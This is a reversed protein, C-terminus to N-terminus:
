RAASGEDEVFPKVASPVNSERHQQDQAFQRRSYNAAALALHWVREVPNSATNKMIRHVVFRLHRRDRRSLVARHKAVYSRTAAARARSHGTLQGQTHKRQAVLPEAQVAYDVGDAMLRYLFDTDNKMRLAVDFGGIRQAAARAVVMNSGTAGPNIAVVDAPGLGRPMRPGPTRHDGAVVTIWTVVLGPEAVDIIERVGALYAPEWWDDDDLLAVYTGTAADIGVNRSGSAGGTGSNRLLRVPVESRAFREVAATTAEDDVDSVVIVEEPPASQRLVSELAEVLLEARRHTPIVASISVPGTM